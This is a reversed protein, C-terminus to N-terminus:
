IINYLFSFSSHLKKRYKRYMSDNPLEGMWLSVAVHLMGIDPHGGTKGM